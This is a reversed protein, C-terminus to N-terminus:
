SNVSMILLGRIPLCGKLPPSKQDVVCQRGAMSTPAELPTNPPLVQSRWLHQSGRDGFCMVCHSVRGCQLVFMKLFLIRFSPWSSYPFVPPLHHGASNTPRAQPACSSFSISPELCLFCPNGLCPPVESQLTLTSSLFIWATGQSFSSSHM